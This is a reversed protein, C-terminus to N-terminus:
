GLLAAIRRIDGATVYRHIPLTILRDVIEKAGPFPGGGLRGRLEAIGAVTDPYGDSIGLGKEEAMKLIRRKTATDAVLVPFRILAPLPPAAGGAPVIGSAVLRGANEARPGQLATLRAQWGRALGAQFPSMKRIPFTPDFVTEGLRLFPLSKPLWFLRPHILLKLALAYLFLRLSDWWRSGHLTAMERAIAAGIGPDNTLIVGGEVTTLAKGRGLSFFGVDGSTGMKAGNRVAGMAQAADEVLGVPRGGILRKVGRVDAPVGYLHTPIVCLLRPNDLEEALLEPPFDLSGPSLDCLRVKLGARVVASPVSYCTYAPILVEDREPALRKLARLILCLAGKGSSVPFCHRVGYYGRLEETFQAVAREGRLAACLGNLIEKFGLPTAAPPLTRGIRMAM